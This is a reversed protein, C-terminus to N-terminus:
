GYIAQLLNVEGQRRAWIGDQPFKASIECLIKKEVARDAESVLDKENKYNVVLNKKMRMKKATEGAIKALEVIFNVSRDTM